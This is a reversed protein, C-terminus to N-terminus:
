RPRWQGQMAGVVLLRPDSGDVGISYLDNYGAGGDRVLAAYLIRDGQPSFGRVVNVYEGESLAARAETLMTVKGSAADVVALDFRPSVSAFLDGDPSWVAGRLAMHVESVPAGDADTIITSHDGLVAVRTGDPSAIPLEGSLEYAPSGDLPLAMLSVPSAGRVLIASGDPMWAPPNEAPIGIIPSPLSAQRVGDIGYVDVTRQSAGWVALRTSDPSWDFGSAQIKAGVTGDAYAIVVLSRDSYSSHWCDRQYALYSGDPSWSPASYGVTGTCGEDPTGRASIKVANSGDSDALYIDGDLAYALAGSVGVPAPTPEVPQDAPVDAPTLSRVLFLGMALAVIVGLAGARIRRNRQKHERRVLVREFADSTPEFDFAGPRLLEKTDNV